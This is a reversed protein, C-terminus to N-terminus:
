PRSSFSQVPLTFRGAILVILINIARDLPKQAQGYYDNDVRLSRDSWHSVVLTTDSAIQYGLTVLSLYTRFLHYLGVQPSAPASLTYRRYYEL